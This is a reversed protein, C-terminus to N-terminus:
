HGDPKLFVQGQQKISIASDKSFYRQLLVLHHFEDSTTHSTKMCEAQGNTAPHFPASRVHRIGYYRTFDQFESSTFAIGNDTVLTDHIGQTRFIRWMARIAAKSSTSTIPVVELWKSYSDVLIFFLQGQFPGAFDLHLRSWPRHSSEWAREPARPLETRSTQCTQCRKVVDEIDKDLGPWWVYSRALAKMHVVGPHAEHLATLVREQLPKPIVVRSGWLVCGNHVSLEDKRSVFPALDTDGKAKPWGRVVWDLVRCLLKDKSTCRAVESVHVPQEQLSELWAVQHAPAPDPDCVPLPLCSLADAHGM